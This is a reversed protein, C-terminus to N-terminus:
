RAASIQAPKPSDWDESFPKKPSQAKGIGRDASREEQASKRWRASCAPDTLSLNSSRKKGVQMYAELRATRKNFHSQHKLAQSSSENVDTSRPKARRRKNSVGRSSGPKRKKRHPEKTQNTHMDDCLMLLANPETTWGTKWRIKFKKKKALISHPKYRKSWKSTSIDFIIKLFYFFMM